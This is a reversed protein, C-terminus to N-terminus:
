ERRHNQLSELKFNFYAMMHTDESSKSHMLVYITLIMTVGIVTVVKMYARFTVRDVLLSGIFKFSNTSYTFILM